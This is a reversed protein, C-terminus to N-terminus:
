LIGNLVRQYFDYQRTSWADISDSIMGLVAEVCQEESMHLNFRRRLNKIVKPGATFCPCGSAGMMQVLLVIREAHERVALYGQICLAKYADFADSRTGEADSDMVELYEKTLKFPSSEFNIGGPSTSLMFNFDIHILHGDDHLLINGNHRDKVQLLYTLISYGALSEVFNNQAKRFEPTNVGFKREFHDRLSTGRPLRSKLAHVSPADTVAEILASHTDTTLIDFDRIWCRVGANRYIEAFTRVLQLALLEQRCNDGAKIIIPKLGWGPLSGYPSSRRIRERKDAWLEGLGGASRKHPSSTMTAGVGSAIPLADVNFADKDQEYIKRNVQAAMEILAIDSPKRQHPSRPCREMEDRLAFVQLEVERTTEDVQIAVTVLKEDSSEDDTSFSDGSGGQLRLEQLSKDLSRRIRDRSNLMFDDNLPYFDDVPAHNSSDEANKIEEETPNSNVVELCVLYPAKERSNLLVAEEWPIRIVRELEGHGMPFLVGTGKETHRFRKNMRSLEQRLISQRNELPFVKSLSLSLECLDDTLKMTAEFTKRRLNLAKAGDEFPLDKNGCVGFLSSLGGQSRSANDRHKSPSKGNERHKSGEKKSNGFSLARSMGALFGGSGSGPSDPRNKEESTRRSPSRVMGFVRRPPTVPEATSGSRPPSRDRSSSSPSLSAEARSQAREQFPAPWTGNKVTESACRDRFAMLAQPEKSDGVAAALLWCIKTALRLSRRCVMILMREFGAAQEQEGEHAEARQIWMTVIQSLYREMREDSTERYLRACLYDSVGANERREWLNSVAVWEDFRELSEYYALLVGTTGGPSAKVADWSGFGGNKGPSSVASGGPGGRTEDEDEDYDNMAPQTARATANRLFSTGNGNSMWSTVSSSAIADVDAGAGAGAAAAAERAAERELNEKSDMVWAGGSEHRRHTSASASASASASVSVSGEGVDRRMAGGSVADGQMVARRTTRERGPRARVVPALSLGLAPGNSSPGISSPGSPHHVSGPTLKVM